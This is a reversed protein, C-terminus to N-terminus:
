RSMPVGLWGAGRVPSGGPGQMFDLLVEAYLARDGSAAVAADDSAEEAVRVIRRHLFWSLPSYWLLARHIASLLQM